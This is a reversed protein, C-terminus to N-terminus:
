KVCLGKAMALIWLTDRKIADKYPAWSTSGFVHLSSVENTIDVTTVHDYEIGDSLTHVYLEGVSGLGHSAVIADLRSQYITGAEVCEDLLLQFRKGWFELVTNETESPTNLTRSAASLEEQFLTNIDSWAAFVRQDRESDDRIHRYPKTCYVHGHSTGIAVVGAFLVNSGESSFGFEVHRNSFSESGPSQSNRGGSKQSSTSKIRDLTSFSVHPSKMYRLTGDVCTVVDGDELRFAAFSEPRTRIVTKNTGKISQKLVSLIGVTTLNLTPYLSDSSRTLWREYRAQEDKDVINPWLTSTSYAVSLFGQHSPPFNPGFYIHDHFVDRLVSSQLETEYLSNPTRHLKTRKRTSHVSGDMITPSVSDGTDSYVSMWSAAWVSARGSTGKTETVGGSSSLCQSCAGQMLPKPYFGIFQPVVPLPLEPVAGSGMSFDASYIRGNCVSMLPPDSSDSLPEIKDILHHQTARSNGAIAKGTSSTSLSGFAPCLKSTALRNGLDIIQDLYGRVEYPRFDILRSPLTRISEIERVELRRDRRTKHSDDHFTKPPPLWQYSEAVVSQIKWSRMEIGVCAFFDRSPLSIFPLLQRRNLQPGLLSSPYLALSQLTARDHFFYSQNRFDNAQANKNFTPIILIEKFSRYKSISGEVPVESRQLPINQGLQEGHRDDLEAFFCCVNQEKGFYKWVLKMEFTADFCAKSVSSLTLFASFGSFHVIHIYLVLTSSLPSAILSGLRVQM